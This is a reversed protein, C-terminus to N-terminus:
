ADLPDFAELRERAALAARGHASPARLLALQRRRRDTVGSDAIARDIEVLVDAKVAVPLTELDSLVRRLARMADIADRDGASSAADLVANLAAGEFVALRALASQSPAPVRSRVTDLADRMPEDLVLGMRKHPSPMGWLTAGPTVGLDVDHHSRNTGYGAVNVRAPQRCCGTPRQNRRLAQSAQQDVTVLATATGGLATRTRGSSHALPNQSPPSAREDTFREIYDAVEDELVTAIM